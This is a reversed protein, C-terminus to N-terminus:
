TTVISVVRKASRKLRRLMRRHKEAREVEDVARHFAELDLPKSEGRAQKQKEVEWALSITPHQLLTNGGEWSSRLVSCDEWKVLYWIAGNRSKIEALVKEPNHEEGDDTELSANSETDNSETDDSATDDSEEIYKNFGPVPVDTAM